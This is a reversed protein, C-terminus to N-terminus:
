AWAERGEKVLLVVIILSVASDVWWWGPSLVQVILGVGVAGSLYSCAVSEVADARLASSGIQNAIRRKANALWGMVPITLVALALGPTSFEQGERSWVGYAVSAVVYIALAFLLAGGIQSARREVAEPFEAGRRLEVDLRWILVGASALEIISDAGFAILSLSHAAVGSGFAIVAEILMWGATFWELRFARRVLEPRASYTSIDVDAAYRM